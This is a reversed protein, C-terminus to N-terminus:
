GGLVGISFKILETPNEAYSQGPSILGAGMLVMEQRTIHSINGDSTRVYTGNTSQDVIFFKGFRLEIGAHQRSALNSSIVIDCSDGRGFIIKKHDKNVTFVKGGYHLTMECNSDVNAAAQPAPVHIHTGGKDEENWVVIFIDYEIQKGKFEAAMIRHTKKRLDDPLADVVAQSTMIQHARAQSAIRAAVNVTDGFVDGSECIVNGYHFGIRIHMSNGGEYRSNQVASQMACAAQLGIQASPFTCLIEDGITKIVVGQHEAVVASMIAICSAMLRQAMQDGLNDYLATSGCIDAFMIALKETHNPM